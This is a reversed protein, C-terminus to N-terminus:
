EYCYNYDHCENLFLTFKNIIKQFNYLTKMLGIASSCFVTGCSRIEILFFFILYKIQAFSEISLLEM